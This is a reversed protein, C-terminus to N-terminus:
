AGLMREAAREVRARDNLRGSEHAERLEELKERRENQQAENEAVQRALRSFQISDGDGGGVNRLRAAEARTAEGVREVTARLHAESAEKASALESRIREPGPQVTRAQFRRPQDNRLEM